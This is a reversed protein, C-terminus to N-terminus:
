AVDPGGYFSMAYQSTIAGELPLVCNGCTSVNGQHAEETVPGPGSLNVIYM